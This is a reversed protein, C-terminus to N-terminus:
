KRLKRKEDPQHILYLELKEVARGYQNKANVYIM